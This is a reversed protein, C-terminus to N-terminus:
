QLKPNTHLNSIPIQFKEMLSKGGTGETKGFTRLAQLDIDLHYGRGVGGVGM